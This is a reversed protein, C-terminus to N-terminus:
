VTKKKKYIKVNDNVELDPYRRTRKANLDLNILIDISNSKKTADSPTFGHSSHKMKNNYTLMVEFLYDIWQVSGKDKENDIRKYIGDKLTRILREVFYAHGRTILHKINKEEYYKKMANSQIGGEGDTYLVEPNKGMKHFCELLGSAVNGEKNDQLAVVVAYKTFIDICVMGIEFKQNKLDAFFMLDIQYEFYAYPAVFSNYGKQQKKQEVNKNFFENIDSMKISKDKERADQLTVKKSSFGGRDFYIKDIINQKNSM